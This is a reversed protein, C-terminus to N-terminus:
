DGKSAALLICAPLRCPRTIGRKVDERPVLVIKDECWCNVEMIPQDIEWPAKRSSTPIQSIHRKARYERM